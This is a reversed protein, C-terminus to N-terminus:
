DIARLKVGGYSTRINITNGSNETGNYGSKLKDTYDSDSRTITAADSISIGAFETDITFDFRASADYRLNVGTFDSRITVEKFGAQLRAVSISGYDTNLDLMHTITGIKFSVYDGRGVFDAAEGITISGYDTNINLDTVKKFESHTYDAKLEIKESEGLTFSSYDANISASKVYDITSKNTYDMKIYNDAHWLEGIDMRGYDCNLRAHGLLKDLSLTGYDNRADLDNTVPMKVVYNIEVSVNNSSGFWSSWSWNKRRADVMTKASVRSASSEFNVDIERLKEEVDEQDDGTVEVYVEISVTPQDWTTITMSGYKNDLLLMADENVTYSKKLSKKKTYKGKVPGAVVALPLLFALLLIKYYPQM